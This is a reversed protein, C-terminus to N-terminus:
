ILEHNYIPLKVTSIRGTLYANQMARHAHQLVTQTNIPLARADLMVLSVGVKINVFGDKIRFAKLNIGDDIRKFSNARCDDMSETLTLLGFQGDELHVLTDLPRIMQQIRKAVAQILDSPNPTFTANANASKIGVQLYALAGGRSEIQRLSGTMQQELYRRNGLGTLADVLNFKELNALNASLRKKEELLRQLTNCLREAAMVRSLLQDHMTSKSIFDDVGRDFAEALVNEGEKGTLLIIYTYHELAEDLVRVRGTLELGDMVPMLWDALLVNASRQELLTLAQEASNAYRVDRYGAQSLVRGIMASSFKADDVVMISLTPNQM